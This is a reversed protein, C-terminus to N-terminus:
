LCLKGKPCGLILFIFYVTEAGSTLIASSEMAVNCFIYNTVHSPLARGIGRKGDTKEAHVYPRSPHGVDGCAILSLTALCSVSCFSTVM